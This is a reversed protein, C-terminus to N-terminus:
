VADTRFRSVAIVGFILAFVLLAIMNPVVTTFNGGFVMLDNFGANAWGHPILKAIFQMWHPTIFLPWWCGGLPALVLAILVGLTSAAKETKVLTALMISFTSSVLVMLLSLIIVALPSGGMDLKFALVGVTWFIIIQVLGRAFTGLFLGGLISQRKASTALLRELTNNQRELVIVSATQAAAFFTFMVLYGPIVYNSPNSAEVAGVNETQFSIL